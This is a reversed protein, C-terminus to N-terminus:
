VEWYEHENCLQATFGIANQLEERRLRVTLPGTRLPPAADMRYSRKKHEHHPRPKPNIQAASSVRFPVHKKKKRATM